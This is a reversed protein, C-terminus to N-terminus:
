QYPFPPPPLARVETSISVSPAYGIAEDLAQRVSILLSGVIARIRSPLKASDEISGHMGSAVIFGLAASRREQPKLESSVLARFYVAFVDWSEDENDSRLTIGANQFITAATPSPLLLHGAQIHQVCRKQIIELDSRPIHREDAHFFPRWLSLSAGM